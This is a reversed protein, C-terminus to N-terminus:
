CEGSIGIARGFSDAEDSSVFGVPMGFCWARPFGMGLRGM